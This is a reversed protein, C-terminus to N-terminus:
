QIIASKFSVSYRLTSTNLSVTDASVNSLLKRNNGLGVMYDIVKNVSELSRGSVTLLLINQDISLADVSVDETIGSAIKTILDSYNNRKVTINKINNVRDNALYIKAAKDQLYSISSLTGSEEKKIQPIPISLSLVFVVVTLLGVFSLFVIAIVRVIMLRRLKQELDNSQNSILNISSTTM